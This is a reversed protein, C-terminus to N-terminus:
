LDINLGSQHCHVNEPKKNKASVDEADDSYTFFRSVAAENFDISLIKCVAHSLKSWNQEILVDSKALCVFLIKRFDDRQGNNSLCADLTKRSFHNGDSDTHGISRLFKLTTDILIDYRRRSDGPPFSQCHRVADCFREFTPNAKGKQTDFAKSYSSISLDKQPDTVPKGVGGVAVVRLKKLVSENFQEQIVDGFSELVHTLSADDYLLITPNFGDSSCIRDKEAQKEADWGSTLTVENHSFAKAIRAVSEGFRHSQNIVEFMDKQSRENYSTNPAEGGGLGNFIAQDPDGFRQISNSCDASNFIRNILEDQHAQTDQMEDIFLGSFRQRLSSNLLCNQTAESMAIAFVDQFFLYGNLLLDTRVKVLDRYSDSASEKKFGPVQFQYKGDVFSMKFGFLSEPVGGKKDLYLKTKPKLKGQIQRVCIEDDVVNMSIGNSRLSPFAVFKGAFEQITGIFHPYSLLRQAEKFKSNQLRNIIENKAVNTHSVVCIGRDQHTWKKALLILKAAILTTKGSGPCAQVDISDMSKLINRRQEDFKLGESRELEDIDADSIQPQGSLM